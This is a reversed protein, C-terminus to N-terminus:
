KVRAEILILELADIFSEQEALGIDDWEDVEIDRATMAITYFKWFTRGLEEREM